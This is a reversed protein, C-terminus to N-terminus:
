NSALVKEKDDEFESDSLIGKTHNETIEHIMKYFGIEQMIIDLSYGDRSLLSPPLYTNDEIVIAPSVNRHIFENVNINKSETGPTLGDLKNLLEPGTTIYLRM